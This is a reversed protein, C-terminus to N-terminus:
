RGLSLFARFLREGAAPPDLREPHWQVAWVPLYGHCLAEAVGDGSRQIVRLGAGARSVAQHHASNVLIRKGFLPLLPSSDTWVSHYRDAGNVASHDPIDQELSGGFFVNIVQLGRCIGLIPKGASVFEELLRLEARDREPELGQSATNEQGYRWPELEGGGPLLLADWVAGQGEARWGFVAQGGAKEVARRYNGFREAEGWIYVTRGM